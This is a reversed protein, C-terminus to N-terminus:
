PAASTIFGPLDTARRATMDVALTCLDFMAVPAGVHTYLFHATTFSKAKVAVLRSAARLCNGAACPGLRAYRLEALMRGIGTQRTFDQTYGVQTIHHHSAPVLRAVCAEYQLTGDLHLEPPRVPGLEVICDCAPDPHWVETVPGTLSRPLAQHAQAATLPRLQANRAFGYDLATAVVKGHRFMYHATLPAEGADPVDFSRIEVADGSHLESHFRVHRRSVAIRDPDTNGDLAAAVEAAAQFSRSYYRTNWHGNFDCEWCEARTHFTPVGTEHIEMCQEKRSM